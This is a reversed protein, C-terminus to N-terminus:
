GATAASLLVTERTQAALLIAEIIELAKVAEDGSVLPTEEERIVAVFQAIQNVLPDSADRPITMASIPQWWGRDNPNQWLRLDPLSLSGHTGGIQYCSEPTPPYAPNESATLEWSWPAVITDSLTITGIVNDEFRLIAAAVDENEYGRISPATQAQVSVVNGCLYRLLDLDHVLNIFVPGQRKQKHWPAKDFYDDPKFLWCHAHVARLEGLEGADVLAKAKQILPNHRRHHGVLLPVGARNAEDVLVKADAVSSALPKEVLIPCGARVCCLGNDVHAENPTAVIVGDPNISAFLETLSPFWDVNLDQAYQRTRTDPDVIACLEADQSQQIAAIHRKGVLGAGAVALRTLQKM